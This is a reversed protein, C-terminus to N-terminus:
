TSVAQIRAAATAAIHAILLPWPARPVGRQSCLGTSPGLMRRDSTTPWYFGAHHRVRGYCDPRHVLPDYSIAASLHRCYGFSASRCCSCRSSPGDGPSQTQSGHWFIRGVANGISAVGVMGAAVVASVPLRRFCPRNRRSSRSAQSTNLVPAGM